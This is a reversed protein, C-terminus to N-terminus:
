ESLGLDKIAENLLKLANTKALNEKTSNESLTQIAECTKSNYEKLQEMLNKIQSRLAENDERTISMETLVPAWHLKLKYDIKEMVKTSLAEAISESMLQEMTTM